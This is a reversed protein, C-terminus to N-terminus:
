RCDSAKPKQLAEGLADLILGETSPSTLAWESLSSLMNVQPVTLQVFKPKNHFFTGFWPFGEFNRSYKTGDKGTLLRQLDDDLQRNWSPVDANYFFCINLGTYGRIGYRSNARVEWNKGCAVLPEGANRQATWKPLLQQHYYEGNFVDNSTKDGFTDPALAVGFLSKVDTNDEFYRNSTNIFVFINKVERALLPMVGLNDTFGGDGHDVLNTEVPGGTADRVSAAVFKPFVAAAEQVRTKIADPV